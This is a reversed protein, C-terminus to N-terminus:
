DESLAQQVTNLLEASDFPKKLFGEVNPGVVEYLAQSTYQGTCFIVKVHPDMQLIYELWEAGSMSPLIWDLIVLGIQERHSRLIETAERGDNAALVQYGADELFGRTVATVTEDDDVILVTPKASVGLEGGCEQDDCNSEHRM